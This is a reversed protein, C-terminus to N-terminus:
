TADPRRNPFAYVVSGGFTVGGMTSQGSLTFRMWNIPIAAGAGKPNVATPVVNSLSPHFQDTDTTPIASAYLSEPNPDFPQELGDINVTISDPSDTPPLYLEFNSVQMRDLPDIRRLGWVGKYSISQGDDSSGAPFKAMGWKNDATPGVSRGIFTTLENAQGIDSWNKWPLSAWDELDGVTFAASGNTTGAYPRSLTITNAVTDVAQIFYDEESAVWFSSPLNGLVLKPVAWTPNVPASLTVTASGQVVSATGTSYFDTGGNPSGFTTWDYGTQEQVPLSCTISDHLNQIPMFVNLRTDLVIAHQPDTDSDLSVFWWIQQQQPLYVAHARFAETAGMRAQVVSDIAASIVQASQGDFLYIRGDRGLYYHAGGLEILASPSVPGMTVGYLKEFQFAEADLGPAAAMIWAGTQAYAIANLRSTPRIAIINGFPGILDANNSAPWATVDSAFNISSWRVRQPHHGSSDLVNAVVVRNALVCIDAGTPAGTIVQYLTQDSRWRRLPDACSATFGACVGYAYFNGNSNPDGLDGEFFVAFRAPNDGTNDVPHAPDTIDTWENSKFGYWKSRTAIVSAIDGNGDTWSVGGLPKDAPQAMGAPLYGSRSHMMGDTGVVVNLGDSLATPPIRHPPLNAVLGSIPPPIDIPSPGRM